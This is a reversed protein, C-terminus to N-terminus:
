KVEALAKAAELYQVRTELQQVSRVLLGILEVPDICLKKTSEDYYTADPMVEKYEQAIFGYHLREPSTSYEPKYNFTVPKLQRLQSLADEIREINDKTDRDSFLSLGAGIISGIGSMTASQGAASAQSKAAKVQADALLEASDVAAEAALGQGIIAAKAEMIGSRENARNAIGTAYLEDFKPANRRQAQFAGALDVMGAASGFGGSSRGFSFKPQVPKFSM